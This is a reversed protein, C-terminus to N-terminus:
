PEPFGMTPADIHQELLGVMAGNPRKAAGHALFAAGAAAALGVNAAIAAGDDRDDDDDDDDDDDSLTIIRSVIPGGGSDTDTDTDSDATNARNSGSPPCEAAVKELFEVVLTTDDGTTVQGVRFHVGGTVNHYDKCMEQINEPWAEQQTYTVQVPLTIVADSSPHHNTENIKGQPMVLENASVMWEEFDKLVWQKFEKTQIPLSTRAECVLVFHLKQPQRANYKIGLPDDYDDDGLYWCKGNSCIRLDVPNCLNFCFAHNQKDDDDYDDDDDYVTDILGGYAPTQICAKRIVKLVKVVDAQGNLEVLCAFLYLHPDVESQSNNTITTTPPPKAKGSLWLSLTQVNLVDQPRTMWFNVSSYSLFHWMAVVSNNGDYITEKKTFTSYSKWFKKPLAPCSLDEVDQLAFRNKCQEDVWEQIDKDMLQYLRPVRYWLTALAAFVCAGYVQNIGQDSCSNDVQSWWTPNGESM